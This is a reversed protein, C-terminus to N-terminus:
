PPPLLSGGFASLNLVIPGLVPDQLVDRPNEPSYETAIAGAIRLAATGVLLNRREDISTFGSPYDFGATVNDLAADDLRLEDASAVASAALLCGGALLSTFLLRM